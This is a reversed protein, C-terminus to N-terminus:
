RPAMHQLLPIWNWGIEQGRKEISPLLFRTPQLARTGSAPATEYLQVGKGSYLAYIHEESARIGFAREVTPDQVLLFAYEGAAAAVKLAQLQHQLEPDHFYWGRRKGEAIVKADFATPIIVAGHAHWTCAAWLSPQQAPKCLCLPHRCVSCVLQVRVWGTRDVDAPGLRVVQQRGKRPAGVTKTPVWNRRIKGCRSFELYSHFVDLEAEFSDGTLKRTRGAQSRVAKKPDIPETLARVREQDEPSLEEFPVSM